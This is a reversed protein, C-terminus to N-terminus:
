KFFKNRITQIAKYLATNRILTSDGRLSSDLSPDMKKAIATVGLGRKLMEIIENEQQITLSPTQGQKVKPQIKLEKQWNKVIPHLARTIQKWNATLDIWVNIETGKVAAIPIIYAADQCLSKSFSDVQGHRELLGKVEDWELKPDILHGHFSGLYISTRFPKTAKWGENSTEIVKQKLGALVFKALSDDTVEEKSEIFDRFTKRSIINLMYPYHQIMREEVIDTYSKFGATEQPPPRSVIDQIFLLLDDKFQNGRQSLAYEQSDGLYVCGALDIHWAQAIAYNRYAERYSPDRRLVNWTHEHQDIEPM